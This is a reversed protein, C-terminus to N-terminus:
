KFHKTYFSIIEEETYFHKCLKTDYLSDLYTKSPKYNLKFDQYISSYWKQDGRNTSTLVINTGCFESLPQLIDKVKELKYVFIEYKGKKIISYGADKDFAENLIDIKTFPLIENDFWNLVLDHNFCQDFTDHIVRNGEERVSDKGAKTYLHRYSLWLHLDQLYHSRNKEFPDRLMTIIKIKKRKRLLTLVKNARRKIKIKKLISNHKLIKIVPCPHQDFLSHTHLANPLSNELTTSGVKGMQYILIANEDLYKNIRSAKM